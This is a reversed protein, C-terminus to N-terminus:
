FDLSEVLFSKLDRKVFAMAKAARSNTNKDLNSNRFLIILGHLMAWHKICKRGIDEETLESNLEVIIKVLENFAGEANKLLEPFNNKDPIQSFMLDYTNRKELGFAIYALAMELFKDQSSLKKNSTSAKNLIGKFEIFGRSSVAALLCEKTKFHRYPAAQSVKAEKAISRLSMHTHGNAECIICASLILEEKLNGHHYKM